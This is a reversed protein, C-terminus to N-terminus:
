NGSTMWALSQSRSQAEKRSHVSLCHSVPIIPLATEDLNVVMCSPIDHEEVTAKIRHLFDEKVHQFNDPLKKAAKTGKRKVFGARALVSETWTRGVCLSGGNEPPLAPQVTRTIGLATAITTKRNVLGGADRVARIYKIVLGDIEKGLLLPRGRANKELAVIADRDGVIKLQQKFKLQMSQITSKNIPHGLEETFHRVAKAVGHDCAYKSIKARTEADYEHYSSSTRNRKSAVSTSLLESVAENAAEFAAGVSPNEEANPDPM